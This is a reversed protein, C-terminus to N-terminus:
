LAHPGGLHVVVTPSALAAQDELLAVREEAKLARQLYRVAATHAAGLELALERADEVTLTMPEGAEVKDVLQCALCDCNDHRQRTMPM